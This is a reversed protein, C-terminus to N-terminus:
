VVSKRDLLENTFADFLEQEQEATKKPKCASVSALLSLILALAMFRRVFCRNRKKANM